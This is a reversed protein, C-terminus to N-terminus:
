SEVMLGRGIARWWYGEVVLGGGAYRWRKGEVM